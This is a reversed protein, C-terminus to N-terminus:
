MECRVAGSDCERLDDITPANSVCLLDIPRLRLAKRVVDPCLAGTRSPRAEPCELRSLNACAAEPTGPMPPLPAAQPQCSNLAVILGFLVAFMFLIGGAVWLAERTRVNNLDFM